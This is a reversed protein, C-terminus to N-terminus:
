ICITTLQSYFSYVPFLFFSFHSASYCVSHKVLPLRSSDGRGADQLSAPLKKQQTKFAPVSDHWIEWQQQFWGYFVRQKHAIDHIKIGTRQKVHCLYTPPKTKTHYLNKKNNKLKAKVSPLSDAQLTPPQLKIGIDQLDGASPFPLM